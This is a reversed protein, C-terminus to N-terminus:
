RRVRGRRLLHIAYGVGVAAVALGGVVYLPNVGSSKGPTVAGGGPITSGKYVVVDGRIGTGDPATVWLNNVANQFGARASEISAPPATLGAAYNALMLPITLKFFETKFQDKPWPTGRDTGAGTAFIASYLLFQISPLYATGILWNQASIFGNTKQLAVISLRTSMDAYAVGSSGGYGGSNIYTLLEMLNLMVTSTYQDGWGPAEMFSNQILGTTGKGVNLLNYIWAIAYRLDRVMDPMSLDLTSGLPPLLIAQPTVVTASPASPAVVSPTAAPDAGLDCGSCGYGDVSGHRITMPRTILKGDIYLPMGLGLSGSHYAQLPGMNGGDDAQFIGDHWAKPTPGMDQPKSEGGQKFTDCLVCAEEGSINRSDAEGVAQPFPQGQPSFYAGLSM